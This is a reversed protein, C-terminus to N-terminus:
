SDPRTLFHFTNLVEGNYLFHVSEPFPKYPPAFIPGKHSLSHWRAGGPEKKEEEWWKWIEEEEEVKVRKSTATGNSKETTVKKKKRSSVTVSASNKDNSQEQRKEKKKRKPAYDEDDSEVRKRKKAKIKIGLPVDDDSMDPVEAKVETVEEVKVEKKVTSPAAHKSKKVRHNHSSAAALAEEFSGKPPMKTKLSLPVDDDDDIEEKKM